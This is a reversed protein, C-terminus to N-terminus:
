HLLASVSERLSLLGADVLQFLSGYLLTESSLIQFRDSFEYMSYLRCLQKSEDETIQRYMVLTDKGIRRKLSALVLIEQKIGKVAGSDCLLRLIDDLLKQEELVLFIKDYKKLDSELQRLIKGGDKRVTQQGIDTMKEFM